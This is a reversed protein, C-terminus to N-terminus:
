CRDFRSTLFGLFVSFALPGTADVTIDAKAIGCFPAFFFYGRPHKRSRERDDGARWLPRGAEIQHVGRSRKKTDREGGGEAATRLAVTTTIIRAVAKAALL